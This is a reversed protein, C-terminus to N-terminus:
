AALLERIKRIVADIDFPKGMCPAQVLVGERVLADLDENHGASLFVVKLQRRTQHFFERVWEPGSLIPMKIDSVVAAFDSSVAKKLAEGGDKAKTVDFQEGLFLGLLMLIDPEDDVVLIKPKEQYDSGESLSM